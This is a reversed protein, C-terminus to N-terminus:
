IAEVKFHRLAKAKSNVKGVKKYGKAYVHLPGTELLSYIYKYIETKLSWM